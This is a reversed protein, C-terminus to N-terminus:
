VRQEAPARQCFEPISLRRKIGIGDADNLFEIGNVVFVARLKSRTADLIPRNSAEFERITRLGVQARRGLEAASWGLMARALRCQEDTM